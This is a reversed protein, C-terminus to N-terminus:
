FFPKLKFKLFLIRPTYPVLHGSLLTNFCSTESGHHHQGLMRPGPPLWQPGVNAFWFKSLHQMRTFTGRSFLQSWHQAKEGWAPSVTHTGLEASLQLKERGQEEHMMRGFSGTKQGM